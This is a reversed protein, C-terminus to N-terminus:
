RGCTQTQTGSKSYAHRGKRTAAEDSEQKEHSKTPSTEKEAHACNVM